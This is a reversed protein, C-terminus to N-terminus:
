RAFFDAAAAYTEPLGIDIFKTGSRIAALQHQNVLAPLIEQEMSVAGSMNEWPVLAIPDVAYVGANIWGDSTSEGKEVFSTVWDGRVTLTGYRSADPVHHIAAVLGAGTTSLMGLQAKLDVDCFSDGNLAFFPLVVGFRRTAQLIGGGTGLPVEEASCWIPIGDFTEGYASAVRHSLHGSALIIRSVLGSGALHSLVRDLFPRGSVLALPKPVDSVVSALRTGKGGCLVIADM